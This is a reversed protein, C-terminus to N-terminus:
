GCRIPSVYRVIYLKCAHVKDKIKLFDLTPPRVYDIGQVSKIFIASEDVINKKNM